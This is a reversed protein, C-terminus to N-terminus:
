STLKAIGLANLAADTNPVSLTRQEKNRMADIVEMVPKCNLSMAVEEVTLEKEKSYGVMYDTKDGTTTMNIKFDYNPLDEFATEPDTSIAFVQKFIMPGFTFFKVLNDARDIVWVAYGTTPKISNPNINGFSEKTYFKRKSGNAKYQTFSEIESIFRVQNKGEAPKFFGGDNENKRSATVTTSLESMKM